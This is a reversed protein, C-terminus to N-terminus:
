YSMQVCTMYKPGPEWMMLVKGLNTKRVGKNSIIFEEWPQPCITIEMFEFSIFWGGQPQSYTKIIYKNKFLVVAEM